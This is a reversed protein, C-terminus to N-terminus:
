EGRGTWTVTTLGATLLILEPELLLMATKGMSSWREMMFRRRLFMARKIIPRPARVMAGANRAVRLRMGVMVGFAVLVPLPGREIETALFLTMVIRRTIFGVMVATLFVFEPELLLIATKRVSSRRLMMFWRCLFVARRIIPRPTGFMAAADGMVREVRVVLAM